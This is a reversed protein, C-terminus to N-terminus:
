PVRTTSIEALTIAEYNRSSLRSRPSIIVPRRSPTMAITAQASSRATARPPWTTTLRVVVERTADVGVPCPEGSGLRGGTRAARGAARGDPDALGAVGPRRLGVRGGAATGESRVM